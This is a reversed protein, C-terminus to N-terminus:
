PTYSVNFAVALKPSARFTYFAKIKCNTHCQGHIKYTWPYILSWDM